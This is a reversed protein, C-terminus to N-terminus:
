DGLEKKLGEIKKRLQDTLKKDKEDFTLNSVGFELAGVLMKDLGVARMQIITWDPSKSFIYALIDSPHEDASGVNYKVTEIFMRMALQYKTELIYDAAFPLVYDFKTEHHENYEKGFNREMIFALERIFIEQILKQKESDRLHRLAKIRSKHVYGELPNQITPKSVKFWARNTDTYEFLEGEMIKGVVPANMNGRGRVNTFGDSDKIIALNQQARIPLTSVVFILLLCRMM